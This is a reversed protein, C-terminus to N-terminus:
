ADREKELIRLADRHLLHCYGESKEVEKAIESWKCFSLYRLHLVRWQDFTIRDAQLAGRLYGWLRREAKLSETLQRIYRAQAKELSAMKGSLDRRQKTRIEGPLVSRLGRISEATEQYEQRAKEAERWAEGYSNLDM